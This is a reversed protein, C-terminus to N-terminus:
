GINQCVNCYGNEPPFQYYKPIKDVGQCLRVGKKLARGKQVM